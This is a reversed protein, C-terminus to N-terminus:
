EVIPFPYSLSIRNLELFFFIELVNEIDKKPTRFGGTGNPTFPRETEPPATSEGVPEPMLRFTDVGGSGLIYSRSDGSLM